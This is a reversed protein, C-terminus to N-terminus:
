GGGFSYPAFLGENREDVFFGSSDLDATRWRHCIEAIPLAESSGIIGAIGCM